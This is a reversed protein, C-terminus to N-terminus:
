PIKLGQRSAARHYIAQSWAFDLLIISDIEVITVIIGM